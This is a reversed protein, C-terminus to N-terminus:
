TRCNRSNRSIVSNSSAPAVIADLRTPLGRTTSGSPRAASSRRRRRHRRDADVLIQQRRRDEGDVQRAEVLRGAPQDALEAEFFHPPHDILMRMPSCPKASTTAGPRRASRARRGRCSPARRAPACCSRGDAPRPADAGCGVVRRHRLFVGVLVAAALEADGRADRREAPGHDDLLRGALGVGVRGCSWRCSRRRWRPRAARRHDRDAIEEAARKMLGIRSASARCARRRRRGARCARRCGVRRRTRAVEAVDNLM